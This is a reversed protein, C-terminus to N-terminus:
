GREETLSDFGRSPGPAHHHSRVPLGALQVFVGALAPGAMQTASNGAQLIGNGEALEDPRLVKPVAPQYGIDYFVTASGVVFAIVLLTWLTLGFLAYGVGLLALAAARVVACVVILPRTPVRDAFLGAVLALVVVPLFQTASVLGTQTGSSHLEVVALLPLLYLATQYGLRSVVDGIWLRRFTALRLLARRTDTSAGTFDTSDQPHGGM